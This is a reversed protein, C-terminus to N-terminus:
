LSERATIRIFARETSTAAQIRRYHRTKTGDINEVATPNEMWFVGISVLGVPCILNTTEPIYEIGQLTKSRTLTIELTKNDEEVLQHTTLLATHGGGLAFEVLQNYNLRSNNTCISVTSVADKGSIKDYTM